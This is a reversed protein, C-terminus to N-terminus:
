EGDDEEDIKTDTCTRHGSVFLLDAPLVVPRRGIVSDFFARLPPLVVMAVAVAVVVVVVMATMAVSAAFM